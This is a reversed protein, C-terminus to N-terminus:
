NLINLTWKIYPAIYGVKKNETGSAWVRSSNDGYYVKFRVVPDINVIWYQNHVGIRPALMYQGPKLLRSPIITNMEVVGKINATVDEKEYDVHYSRWLLNGSDDYLDYGIVLNKTAHKIECCFRVSIMEDYCINGDQGGHTESDIGVSLLEVQHNGVAGGRPKWSSSIGDDHKKLYRGIVDQPKGDCTSIGNEFLLVRECLDQVATLNHSVFLITRGDRSISSMKGLCKAQFDYDGVALVEDIMLVEPELHAAVSFALRVAMGSSYRKVPTDIFREIGSFDVIEDFKRDVEYKRMGLITGNLYVNERGTLEPHFGTGVELLSAVRGRILVRGMSPPTIRSLVKLLTSKGAGNRGIIGVVEGPMVEFSVNKLAWIVDREEHSKFRTLGRLSRLNVLPSRLYNGLQESLTRASLARAGIRYQKSIDSVTIM